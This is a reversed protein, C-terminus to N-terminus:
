QSKVPATVCITCLGDCWYDEAKINKMFESILEPNNSHIRWERCHPYDYYTAFSSVGMTASYIIFQHDKAPVNMVMFTEVNNDTRVPIKYSCQAIEQRMILSHLKYANVNIKLSGEEIKRDATYLAVRMRNYLADVKTASLLKEDLNDGTITNIGKARGLIASQMDVYPFHWHGEPILLKVLTSICDDKVTYGLGDSALNGLNFISKRVYRAPREARYQNQYALILINGHYFSHVEDMTKTDLDCGLVVCAEGKPLMTWNSRSSRNYAVVKTSVIETNNTVGGMLMQWAFLSDINYPDVMVVVDKTHIGPLPWEAYRKNDESVDPEEKVVAMKITNIMTNFM